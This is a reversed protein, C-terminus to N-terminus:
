KQLGKTLAALKDHWEATRQPQDLEEGYHDRIDPAIPTTADIIM